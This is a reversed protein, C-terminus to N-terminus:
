LIVEATTLSLIVDANRVSAQHGKYYLFLLEDRFITFYLIITMNVYEKDSIQKQRKIDSFINCQLYYNILM